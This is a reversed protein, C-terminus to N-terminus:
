PYLRPDTSRYLSGRPALTPLSLRASAAFRPPFVTDAATSLPIDVRSTRRHHLLIPDLHHHPLCALPGRRRLTSCLPLSSFAGRKVRFVKSLRSVSFSSLPVSVSLFLSRPSLSLIHCFLANASWSCDSVALPGGSRERKRVCKVNVIITSLYIVTYKFIYIYLSIIIINGFHSHTSCQHVDCLAICLNPRGRDSERNEM